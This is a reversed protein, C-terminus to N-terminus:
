KAHWKVQKVPLAVGGLSIRHQCSASTQPSFTEHKAQPAQEISCRPTLVRELKNDRIQTLDGISTFEDVIHITLLFRTLYNPSQYAPVQDLWMCLSYKGSRINHALRVHVLFSRPHLVLIYIYLQLGCLVTHRM